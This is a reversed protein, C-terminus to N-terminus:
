QQLKGFSQISRGDPAKGTIFARDMRLYWEGERWVWQLEENGTKRLHEPHEENLTNFPPPLKAPQLEVTSAVTVSAMKTEPDIHLDEWSMELVKLVGRGHFELYEQLGKIKRQEPDLMGYVNVQDDQKRLAIYEDLRQGMRSEAMAFTDAGGAGLRWLGFGVVGVLGLIAIRRVTIELVNGSM